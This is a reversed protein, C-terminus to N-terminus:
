RGPLPLDLVSGTMEGSFPFNVLPFALFSATAAPTVSGTRWHKISVVVALGAQRLAGRDKPSNAEHVGIAAM